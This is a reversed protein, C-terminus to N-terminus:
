GRLPLSAVVGHDNLAFIRVEDAVEQPGTLQHRGPLCARCTGAIDRCGQRIEALDM